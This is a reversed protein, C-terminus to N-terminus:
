KATAIARAMAAEFKRPFARPAIRRVTDEFDWRKAYSALPRFIYLIELPTPSKGRRRVVMAPQGGRKGIIFPKRKGGGTGRRGREGTYDKLLTAPRWRKRVKGTQTKFKRKRLAKGPLAISTEKPGRTGGEEHIPMFGSIIPATKVASHARGMAVDAKRAPEVRVGRPIFETHLKFESRTRARVGAAALKATKTLALALAFPYQRRQLNTLGAMAKATDVRVHVVAAM